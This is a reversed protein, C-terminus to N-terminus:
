TAGLAGGTATACTPPVVRASRSPTTRTGSRPGAIHIPAGCYLTRCMQDRATLFARAVEPFDRRRVDSGALEGAKADTYLRRVWVRTREDAKVLDRAVPAPVPGYGVVQAPEDDADALTRDTLM